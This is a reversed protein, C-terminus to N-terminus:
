ENQASAERGRLAANSWDPIEGVSLGVFILELIGGPVNLNELLVRANALLLNSFFGM